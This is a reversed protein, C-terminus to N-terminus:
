ASATGMPALTVASKQGTEINRKKLVLKYLLGLVCFTLLVLGIVLGAIAGKCGNSSSQGLCGTTTASFAVAQQVLSITPFFGGSTCSSVATLRNANLASIFGQGVTNQAISTVMNASNSYPTAVQFTVYVQTQALRRRGALATAPQSAATNVISTNSVPVNLVNALAALFGNAQAQGFTAVTYGNILSTSVVYVMASPSAQLGAPLTYTSCQTGGANTLPSNAPFPPGLYPFGGVESLLQVPCGITNARTLALQSALAPNARAQICYDSAGTTTNIGQHELNTGTPNLPGNPVFPIAVTAPYVPQGCTALQCNTPPCSTLTTAPNSWDCSQSVLQKAWNIGTLQFIPLVSAAGTYAITANAISFQLYTGALYGRQIAFGVYEAKAGNLTQTFNNSFVGNDAIMWVSSYPPFPDQIYQNGTSTAFFTVGCLTLPGTYPTLINGGQTYQCLFQAVTMCGGPLTLSPAATRLAPPPPALLTNVRGQLTTTPSETQSLGSFGSPSSCKWNYGSPLFSYSLASQNVTMGPMTQSLASPKVEGFAGVNNPAAFGCTVNASPVCSGGNSVTALTAGLTQGTLLVWINDQTITYGTQDFAGGVGSGKVNNLWTSNGSITFSANKLLNFQLLQGLNVGNTTGICASCYVWISTFPFFPDQILTHTKTSTYSVVGQFKTGVPVVNVTSPAKANITNAAAPVLNPDYPAPTFKCLLQDISLFGTPNGNADTYGVTANYYFPPQQVNYNVITGYSSSTYPQASSCAALALLVAAALLPSSKQM